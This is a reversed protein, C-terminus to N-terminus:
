RERPRPCRVDDPLYLAEHVLSQGLAARDPDVLKRTSLCQLVWVKDPRLDVENGVSYLHHADYLDLAYVGLGIAPRVHRVRPLDALHLDGAVLALAALVFTYFEDQSSVEPM